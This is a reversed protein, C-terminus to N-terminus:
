KTIYILNCYLIIRVKVIAFATNGFVPLPPPGPIGLKKFVSYTEVWSRCVCFLAHIICFYCVDYELFYIICIIINFQGKEKEIRKLQSIICNCNSFYGPQM